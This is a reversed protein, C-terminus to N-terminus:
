ERRRILAGLVIFLVGLIRGAPLRIPGTSSCGSDECGASADDCGLQAELDLEFTPGGDCGFGDASCGDVEIPTVSDTDLILYGGLWSEETNPEWFLDNVGIGAISPITISPLLDPALVQGLALELLSPVGESYGSPLLESYDESLFFDEESLELEMAITNGDLPVQLGIDVNIGVSLLRATRDDVPGYTNLALDDVIISIPPQDDSFEVFLPVRPELFLDVTADEGVLEGIDDGFFTSALQGSIPIDALESVDACLVGSAWVGYLLQNVFAESIFFGADYAIGSQFAAGNWEPWDSIEPPPYMEVDACSSGEIVMSSGMGLVLGSEEVLLTTPTLDIVLPEGLLDVAFSTNLQGFADQLASEISEPVDLLSPEVADNILDSIASPNQGLMTGVANSLLCDSVPNTIPSIDFDFPAASVEVDQGNLLVSIATTISFATTPIEVSCTENLDELVSCDGSAELTANSSSLTGMIELILEGNEGYIDVNDMSLYIDLDGITYDMATSDSCDLSGTGASIPITEPLLASVGEALHDFGSASFHIAIAQTNELSIPDAQAASLLSLFFM